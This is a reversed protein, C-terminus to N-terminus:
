KVQKLIATVQNNPVYCISCFKQINNNSTQMLGSQSNIYYGCGRILGSLGSKLSISRTRYQIIGRKYPWEPRIKFQNIKYSVVLNDGDQSDVERILWEPRIKFQNIKYSVVLNDGDQSDVERILGSLGSKLSISRTRYQQIIGM